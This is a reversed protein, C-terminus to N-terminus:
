QVSVRPQRLSCRPASPCSASGCPLPPPVLVLAARTVGAPLGGPGAAKQSGSGGAAHSHLGYSLSSYLPSREKSPSISASGSVGLPSRNHSSQVDPPEMWTHLRPSPSTHFRSLHPPRCRSMPMHVNGRDCVQGGGEMDM